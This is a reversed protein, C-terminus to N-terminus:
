SQPSSRRDTNMSFELVFYTRLPSAVNILTLM